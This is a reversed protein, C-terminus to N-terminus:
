IRGQKKLKKLVSNVWKEGADGGWLAWAIMGNGPMVIGGIERTSLSNQKHRAFFAKMRFITDLSVPLRKSLQIARRQGILTGGREFEKRWELGQSAVKAVSEPPIFTTNRQVSAQSM